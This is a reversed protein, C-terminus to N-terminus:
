VGRAMHEYMERFRPIDAGWGSISVAEWPENWLEVANVPGKPWGFELALMKCWKEFDSDCEPMWAYDEKINEIMTGDEKLWPRPQGLPMPAGGEGITVMVAINHEQMERLERGMKAWREKFDPLTTPFYGIGHRCGKIGLREFLKYTQTSIEHPWPMDLAYTPYQARDPDAKPVRALTAGFARGLPGADLVLAFGGFHDPMPPKVSIEIASGAPIELKVPISVTDGIKFLDPEWVDNPKSKTGYQILEWHGDSKIAHDTKNALRFTLEPQDGPWVVNAPPESRIEELTFEKAQQAQELGFTARYGPIGQGTVM